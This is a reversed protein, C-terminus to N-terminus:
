KMERGAVCRAVEGEQGEHPGALHWPWPWPRGGPGARLRGEAAAGLSGPTHLGPAEGGKGEVKDERNGKRKM